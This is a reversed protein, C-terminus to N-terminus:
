WVISLANSANFTGGPPTPCFSPSPDRYYTMYYRTEGSAIPDGLAASRATISPDGAHPAYVVGGSASKAYLRKLSGGVCRLGDGFIAPAITAPGQVFITLATPLEGSASLV